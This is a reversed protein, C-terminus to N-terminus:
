SSKNGQELPVVEDDEFDIHSGKGLQSWDDIVARDDRQPKIDEILTKDESASNSEIEFDASLTAGPSAEAKDGM